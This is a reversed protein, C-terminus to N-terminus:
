RTFLALRYFFFVDISGCTMNRAAVDHTMFSTLHLSVKNITQHSYLVIEVSIDRWPLLSSPRRGREAEGNQQPQHRLLPGHPQDTADPGVQETNQQHSGILVEWNRWYIAQTRSDPKQLLKSPRQLGPNPYATHWWTNSGVIIAHM